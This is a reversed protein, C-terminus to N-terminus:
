FFVLFVFFFVPTEGSAISIGFPTNSGVARTLTVGRVSKLRAHAEHMALSRRRTPFGPAATRLLGYSVGAQVHQEAFDPALQAFEAESVFHFDRGDVQWNIDVHFFM